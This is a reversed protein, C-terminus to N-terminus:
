LRARRRQEFDVASQWQPLTMDTQGDLATLLRAVTIMDHLQFADTAQDKKRLEVFVDAISNRVVEPIAVRESLARVAHVLHRYDNLLPDSTLDTLASRDLPSQLPLQRLSPCQLLSKGESLVLVNIDTDFDAVHYKFDYALKQSSIVSRLFAINRLGIENLQGAQMVTEDILLMTGDALQLRGSTLLERSYDKVPAFPKSNLVELTLPLMDVKDCLLSLINALTETTESGAPVKTLNLPLCGVPIEEGRVGVKSALYCLFYQASLSDGAFLKTLLAQLSKVVVGFDLTGMFPSRLKRYHVVHLNPILSSPPPSQHVHDGDDISDSDDVMDNSLVGFLEYVENLKISDAGNGYFKARFVPTAVDTSLPLHALKDSLLSPLSNKAASSQTGNTGNERVKTSEAAKLHKNETSVDSSSDVDMQAAPADGEDGNLCDEIPRKTCSAMAALPDATAASHIRPPLRLGDSATEFWETEGAVSIVTFVERSATVNEMADWNLKYGPPCDLKDRLFGCVAVAPKDESLGDASISSLFLEAGHMDQIMGRFRVLCKPYVDGLADRHLYPVKSAADNQECYESFENLLRKFVDDSKGDAVSREFVSAAYGVPDVHLDTM